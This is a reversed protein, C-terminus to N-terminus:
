NICIKCSFNTKKHSIKRIQRMWLPKHQAEGFYETHQEGVLTEKGRLILALTGLLSVCLRNKFKKM